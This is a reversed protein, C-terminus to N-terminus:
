GGVEAWLHRVIPVYQGPELTGAVDAHVPLTDIEREFPDDFLELSEGAALFRQRRVADPTQVRITLAGLELGLKVERVFRVATVCLPRPLEPLRERFMRLLIDPDKEREEAAEKQCLERWRPKNATYEDYPVGHRECFTLLWPYVIHFKHYGAEAVLRDSLYDKGALKKGAVFVIEPMM